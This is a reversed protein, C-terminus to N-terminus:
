RHWEGDAIPEIHLANRFQKVASEPSLGAVHVASAHAMALAALAEPVDHANDCAAHLALVAARMVRQAQASPEDSMEEQKEIEM